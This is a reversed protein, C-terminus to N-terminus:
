SWHKNTSQKRTFCKLKKKDIKFFTSVFERTKPDLYGINQIETKLTKTDYFHLLFIFEDLNGLSLVREIILNKHRTNDLNEFDVDWFLEKRVPIM